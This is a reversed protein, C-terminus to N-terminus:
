RVMGNKRWGEKREWLACSVLKRRCTLMNTKSEGYKNDERKMLFTLFLVFVVSICSDSRFFFILLITFLKSDLYDNHWMNHWMIIDCTACYIDNNHWMARIDNWGNYNRAIFSSYWCYQLGCTIMIINWLFCPVSTMDDM